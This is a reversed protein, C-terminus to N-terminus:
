FTLADIPDWLGKKSIITLCQVCKMRVFPHMVTAYSNLADCITPVLFALDKHYYEIVNALFVALRAFKEDRKQSNEKFNTFAENFEAIKEVMEEKYHFPTCHIRSLFLNLDSEFKNTNNLTTAKDAAKSSKPIHVTKKEWDKTRKVFQDKPGKAIRKTTSPTNAPNPTRSRNKGM